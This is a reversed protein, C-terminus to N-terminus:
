GFVTQNVRSLFAQRARDVYEAYAKVAADTLVAALVPSVSVGIIAASVLLLRRYRRVKSLVILWFVGYSVEGRVQIPRTSDERWRSASITLLANAATATANTQEATVSARTVRM